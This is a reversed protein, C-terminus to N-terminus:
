LVAEVNANLIVDRLNGGFPLVTIALMDAASPYAHNNNHNSWDQIWYGGGKDRHVSYYRGSWSLIVVYGSALDTLFEDIGGYAVPFSEENREEYADGVEDELPRHM